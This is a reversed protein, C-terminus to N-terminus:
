QPHLFFANDTQPRLEKLLLTTGKKITDTDQM